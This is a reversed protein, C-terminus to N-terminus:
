FLANHFSLTGFTGMMPCPFKFITSIFTAFTSVSIYEFAYPICEPYGFAIFFFKQFVKNQTNRNISESKSALHRIFRCLLKKPNNAPQHANLFFTMFRKGALNLAILRRKSAFPRTFTSPSSRPLDNNQADQFSVTFYPYERNRFPSVINDLFQYFMMGFRSRKIIRIIPMCICRKCESAIMDYHTLFFAFRATPVVNVANFAEPAIGFMPKILVPSHRFLEKMKIQTFNRESKVMPMFINQRRYKPQQFM